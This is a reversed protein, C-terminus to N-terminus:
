GCNSHLLKYILFCTLSPLPYRLWFNLPLFCIPVSGFVIVLKFSLFVLFSPGFLAYSRGHIELLDFILNSSVQLKPISKNKEEEVHLWNQTM